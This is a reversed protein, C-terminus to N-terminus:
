EESGHQKRINYLYDDAAKQAAEFIGNLALAAEAISGAESIGIERKKQLEALTKKLDAITEDKQDLREKLHDIQANLTTEQEKLEADKDDLKTKMRTTLTEIEEDKENLKAKLRESMESLEEYRSKLEEFERGQELLLQLVEQRNLQRLAKDAM